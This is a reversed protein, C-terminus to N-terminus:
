QAGYGSGADIQVPHGTPSSTPAYHFTDSPRVTVTARDPTNTSQKIAVIRVWMAQQGLWPVDAQVLIDDGPTLAGIPANPHDIIQFENITRVNSRRTHERQVANHLRARDASKDFYTAARRLRGNRTAITDRVMAGGTGQGFGYINQAYELGDTSYPPPIIINEGHAFRLDDRRTGIRPFGIQLRHEIDTKASNWAHTEIYDMPGTQLMSNIEEGCDRVEHWFLRYPGGGGAGVRLWTSSTGTVQVGLNADPFGQVYGWLHKIVGIPDPFDAPQFDSQYPIGTPYTSYGATSVSLEPGDYDLNTIMGGTRIHGDIELFISTDWETIIPLGDDAKAVALEPNLKGSIVPPASLEKSYTDEILPLDWDLFEGTLTRRAIFRATM